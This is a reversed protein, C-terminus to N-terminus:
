RRVNNHIWHRVAGAPLIYDQNPKRGSVSARYISHDPAVLGECLDIKMLQSPKYYSRTFAGNFIENYQYYLKHDYVATEPAGGDHVHVTPFFLKYPDLTPYKYAMPHFDLKGKGPKLQFVVFGYNSYDPLSNWIAAELRFRPDLRLFSALNPVYSAEYVGVDHVKLFGRSASGGLSKSFSKTPEEFLREMDSFFKPYKELNVFQVADDGLDGSAPVPLIMALDADVTASMQYVTAHIGLGLDTTFIKTSSVDEVRGSFICM